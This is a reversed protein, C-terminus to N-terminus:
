PQLAIYRVLEEVNGTKHYVIGSVAQGEVDDEQLPEEKVIFESGQASVPIMHEDANGNAETQSSAEDRLNVYSSELLDADNDEQNSAANTRFSINDVQPPDSVDSKADSETPQSKSKCIQDGASSCLYENDGINTSCQISVKKCPQQQSQFLPISILASLLPPPVASRERLNPEHSISIHGGPIDVKLSNEHLVEEVSKIQEKLVDEGILIDTNHEVTVSTQSQELDQDTEITVTDTKVQETDTNVQETDIRVQETDIRVQETDNKDLEPDITVQENSLSATVLNQFLNIEFGSRDLNGQQNLISLPM